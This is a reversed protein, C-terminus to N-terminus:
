TKERGLWVSSGLFARKMYGNDANHLVCIRKKFFELPAPLDRFM